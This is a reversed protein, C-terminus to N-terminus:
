IRAEEESINLSKTLRKWEKESVKRSPKSAPMVKDLFEIPDEIKWDEKTIPQVPKMGKISDLERFVSDFREKKLKDM